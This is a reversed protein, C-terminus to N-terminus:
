QKPNANLYASIFKETVEKVVDIIDTINKRGATGVNSTYWTPSYFCQKGSYHSRRVVQQNLGIGVNFAILERRAAPKHSSIKIYLYPKSLPQVRENEEKSLIEIGATRLKAEVETQIQIMTLNFNELDPSLEEILVEVGKLGKLSEMSSLPFSEAPPFFFCFSIASALIFIIKGTKMSEGRKENSPTPRLFVWKAAFAEM